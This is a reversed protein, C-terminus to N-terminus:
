QNDFLEFYFCKSGCYGCVIASTTARLIAYWERQRCACSCPLGDVAVFPLYTFLGNNRLCCEDLCQTLVCVMAISSATIQPM